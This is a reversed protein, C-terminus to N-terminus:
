INESFTLMTRPQQAWLGLFVATMIVGWFATGKNRYASMLITHVDLGPAMLFHKLHNFCISPISWFLNGVFHILRGFSTKWQFQSLFVLAVCWLYVDPLQLSTFFVLDLASYITWHNKMHNKGCFCCAHPDPNPDGSGLCIDPPHLLRDTIRAYFASAPIGPTFQSAFSAADILEPNSQSVRGRYYPLDCDLFLVLGECACVHICKSVCLFM